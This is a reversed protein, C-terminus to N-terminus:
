YSRKWKNSKASEKKGDIDVSASSLVWAAGWSSWFLVEEPGGEELAVFPFLPLRTVLLLGDFVMESDIFKFPVFEPLAEHQILTQTLFFLM